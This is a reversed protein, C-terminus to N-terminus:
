FEEEQQEIVDGPETRPRTAPGVLRPENTAPDWVLQDGRALLAQLSTYRKPRQRRFVDVMKNWLVQRIFAAENSTVKGLDIQWLAIRGVQLLDKCLEDDRKALKRAIAKIDNNYRPLYTAEFEENTM